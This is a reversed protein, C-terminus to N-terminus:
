LSMHLTWICFGRLAMQFKRRFHANKDPAHLNLLKVKIAIFLNKANGNFHFFSFMFMPAQSFHEYEYEEYINYM